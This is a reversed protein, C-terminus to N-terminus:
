NEEKLPVELRVVTGVGAKSAINLKGGFMKAREKM